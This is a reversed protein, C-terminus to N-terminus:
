CAWLKSESVCIFLNDHKESIWMILFHGNPKKGHIENAQQDCEGGAQQMGGGRGWVSTAERTDEKYTKFQEELSVPWLQLSHWRARSCDIYSGNHRDNVTNAFGGDSGFSDCSDDSSSTEMPILSSNRFSRLGMRTSPPQVLLKQSYSKTLKSIHQLYLTM